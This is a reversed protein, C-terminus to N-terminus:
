GQQHHGRLGLKVVPANAAMGELLATSNSLLEDWTKDTIRKMHDLRLRDKDFVWYKISPALYRFFAMWETQNIALPNGQYLAIKGLNGMTAISHAALLMSRYKPNGALRFSVEGHDLYHRVMLYARLVLEVVAPTIGMALFHRFDYGQTYMFRAVEAITRDKEGLSGFNLAQVLPMLPSPLGMPTAVDSILHGIQKLFAEILTVHEASGLPGNNVFHHICGLRDYSFGTTTGRLIDVVGFVFGLIPDHGLSQFRHTRAGFGTGVFDYPVRCHAELDRCWLAVWGNQNEGHIDFDKIWKTLPSGAQGSFRGIRIDAPIRVLLMDTLAALCGSAGVLLYDWKDWRFQQSYDESKLREIDADSLMSSFPVRYELSESDCYDVCGDVFSDWDTFCISQLHAKVAENRTAFSFAMEGDSTWDLDQPEILGSSDFLDDLISNAEELNTAMECQVTSTYHGELRDVSARIRDLLDQQAVLVPRLALLEKENM